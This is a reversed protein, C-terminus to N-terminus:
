RREGGVTRRRADGRDDEQGRVLDGDRLQLLGDGVASKNQGDVGVKVAAHLQDLDAWCQMALTCQQM